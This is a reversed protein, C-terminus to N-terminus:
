SAFQQTTEKEWSKAAVTDGCRMRHTHEPKSDGIAKVFECDITM